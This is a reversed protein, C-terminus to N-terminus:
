KKKLLQRFRNVFLIRQYDITVTVQLSDTLTSNDCVIPLLQIQTIYKEVTNLALELLM